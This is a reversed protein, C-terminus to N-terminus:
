MCWTVQTRTYGVTGTIMYRSQEISSADDNEQRELEQQQRREREKKTEIKGGVGGRGGGRKRKSNNDNNNTNNNNNNNNNNTKNENPDKQLSMFFMMSNWICSLKAAGNAFFAYGLGVFSKSITIHNALAPVNKIPYPTSHQKKFNKEFGSCYGLVVM